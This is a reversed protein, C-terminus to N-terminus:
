GGVLREIRLALQVKPDLTQGDIEVRRGAILRAVADPLAALGRALAGEAREVIASM